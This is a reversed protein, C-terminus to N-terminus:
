YCDYNFGGFNRITTLTERLLTEDSVIYEIEDLELGYDLMSYVDDEDIGFNNCYDL